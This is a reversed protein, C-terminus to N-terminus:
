EHNKSRQIVYKLIIYCSRLSISWPKPLCRIETSFRPRENRPANRIETIFMRFYAITSTLKVDSSESKDMVQRVLKRAASLHNTNEKRSTLQHSSGTHYTYVLGSFFYTESRLMKLAIFYVQDEGLLHDTFRIGNLRSVRFVMRWIGPNLAVYEIRNKHDIFLNQIGSETGSSKSVEFNGIGFNSNYARTQALMLLLNQLHPCDDADWFTVWETNVLNLGANRAEGPSNFSGEIIKFDHTSQLEYLKSMESAIQGEHIDHILLIAINLKTSEDIIRRFNEASFKFAAPVIATIRGSGSTKM